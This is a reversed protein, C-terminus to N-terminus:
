TFFINFYKILQNNNKEVIEKSKVAALLKKLLAITGKHEEKWVVQDCTSDHDVERGGARV